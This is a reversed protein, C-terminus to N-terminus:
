QKIGAKKFPHEGTCEAKFTEGNQFKEDLENLSHVQHKNNNPCTELYVSKTGHLTTIFCCM